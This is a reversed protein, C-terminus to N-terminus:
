FRYDWGIAPGQLAADFVFGSSRYDVDLRRYALLLASQATVKYGIAAMVDANFRSGVDFGGAMVWGTFYTREGLHYTGKVGVVPDTWSEKDRGDVAFFNGLSVDVETRLAWHRIGGLVDVYGWEGTAARYQGALMFTTARVNVDADASIGLPTPLSDSESLRAHLVDVLIGYRGRRAEFAVMAGADLGELVDSFNKSVDARRGFKGVTGDLGAGWVYPTARYRWQSDDISDSAPTTQASAAFSLSTAFLGATVALLSITKSM